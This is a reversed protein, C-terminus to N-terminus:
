SADDEDDDDDRQHDEEELVPPPVPLVRRLVRGRQREARQGGGLAAAVVVARLGTVNDDRQPSRVTHEAGVVLLDAPVVPVGHVYDLLHGGLARGVNVVLDSVRRHRPKGPPFKRVRQRGLLTQHAGAGRSSQLVAPALPRRKESSGQQTPCSVEDYRGPRAPSLRSGAAPLRSGPAPRPRAPAAASAEWGEM